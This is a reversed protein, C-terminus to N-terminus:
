DLSKDQKRQQNLTYNKVIKIGVLNLNVISYIGTKRIKAIYHPTLPKKWRKYLGETKYIGLVFRL